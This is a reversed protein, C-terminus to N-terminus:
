QLSVSTPHRSIPRLLLANTNCPNGVVVVQVDKWMTMLPKGQGTFIPVNALVLDSRLMGKSRPRSGVLFAKNVDKFAVNPDDTAIIGHLLPFAGDNLEMVVGALREM